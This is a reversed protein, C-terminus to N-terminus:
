LGALCQPPSLLGPFALIAHVVVQLHRRLTRHMARRTRPRVAPDSPCIWPSLSRSCKPYIACSSPPPNASLYRSASEAHHAIVLPNYYVTKSISPISHGSVKVTVKSSGTIDGNDRLSFTTRTSDCMSSGIEM